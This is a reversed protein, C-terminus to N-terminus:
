LTDAVAESPAFICYPALRCVGLYQGPRQLSFRPSRKLVQINEDNDAM